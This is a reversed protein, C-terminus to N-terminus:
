GIGSGVKGGITAGIQGGIGPAVTNGIVMGAISGITGWIGGKKKQPKNLDAQADYFRTLFIDDYLNGAMRAESAYDKYMDAALTDSFDTGFGVDSSAITPKYDPTSYPSQIGVNYERGLDNLINAKEIASRELGTANTGFIERSNLWDYGEGKAGVLPATRRADLGTGTIWDSSYRAM